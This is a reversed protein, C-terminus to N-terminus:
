ADLARQCARVTQWCCAFKSEPSLNSNCCLHKAMCVVCRLTACAPFSPCVEFRVRVTRLTMAHWALWRSAGRVYREWGRFPVSVETHQRLRAAHRACFWRFARNVCALRARRVLGCRLRRWAPSLSAAKSQRRCVSVAPAEHLTAIRRAPQLPLSVALQHLAGQRQRPWPPLVTELVDREGTLSTWYTSSRWRFTRAWCCCPAWRQWEPDQMAAGVLLRNM